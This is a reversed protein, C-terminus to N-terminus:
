LYAFIGEDLFKREIQSVRTKDPPEFIEIQKGLAEYKEKGMNHYLLLKVEKPYGNRNFFDIMKEVEEDTDNINKILPIRIMIRQPCVRLLWSLNELIKQNSLGTLAKHKEDDMIKVDYLFYDVYPLIREFREREVCGATDIAVSVNHGKCLKVFALLGDFQLMCEGGSCTVGGSEGFFVEDKLVVQLLEQPSYKKYPIEFARNGCINVCVGCYSCNSGYFYHKHDHFVNCGQPCVKCDGCNVCKDQFFLIERHLNQTEPNQCWACRLNCGKFFVTTRNGPGDDVCFRQINTLIIEQGNM